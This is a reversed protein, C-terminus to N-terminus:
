FSCPSQKIFDPNHLYYPQLVEQVAQQSNLKYLYFYVLNEASLVLLCSIRKMGPQTALFAQIEEETQIGAQGLSVGTKDFAQTYFSDRKTTLTVLCPQTLSSDLAAGKAKAAGFAFLEFTTPAFARARTSLILGQATALGIRIGTFSGPGTLTAVVDLDQFTLNERKLLGQMLPLLCAAQSHPGTGSPIALSHMKGSAWLALSAEEGATDFALINISQQSNHGPTNM